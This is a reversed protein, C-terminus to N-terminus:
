SKIEKYCVEEIFILVELILINSCYRNSVRLDTLLNITIQNLNKVVTILNNHYKNLLKIEIRKEDIRYIKGVTSIHPLSTGDWIIYSGEKLM